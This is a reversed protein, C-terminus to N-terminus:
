NKQTGQINQSNLWKDATYNPQNSVGIIKVLWSVSILFITIHLYDQTFVEHSGIEFIDLV